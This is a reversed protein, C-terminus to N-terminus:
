QMPFSHFESLQSCVPILDILMTCAIITFLNVRMEIVLIVLERIMMLEFSM